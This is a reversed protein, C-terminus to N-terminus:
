PVLEPWRALDEPRDCDALEECLRYAIGRADLRRVTEVRVDPGGWAMDEFLFPMPKCLALAYYGGDRAPGIAVDVEGLAAALERLHEARLDPVDAGLMICPAPVRALREGLGGEGQGVLAVDGLWAAFEAQAAGTIWVQVPLGSAQATALTREVLARHLGAAGEAGLAPILRTNVEGARPFKAFLAITPDTSTM